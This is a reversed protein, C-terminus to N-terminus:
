KISLTYFLVSDVAGDQPQPQVGPVCPVSGVRCFGALTLAAGVVSFLLEMFLIAEFDGIHHTARKNEINSVFRQILAEALVTM